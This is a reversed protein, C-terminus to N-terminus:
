LIGQKKLKSSVLMGHVLTRGATKLALLTVRKFSVTEGVEAESSVNGERQVRVRRHRKAHVRTIVNHGYPKDLIIAWEFASLKISDADGM